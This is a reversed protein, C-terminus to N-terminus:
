KVEINQSMNLLLGVCSMNALLSSGGYSIFPLPIGKTPLLGIVVSINILAQYILMLTIGLALYSGYRDKFSKAIIVGKILIIFYLIWIIISGILGLEESIIAFIFDTHPQPIYFLKQLSNGIGLGKIGGSGVAIKAQELQFLAAEVNKDPPEKGIIQCWWANIREMRYDYLELALVLLVLGVIFISVLIKKNVGLVFLMSIFVMAILFSTGLDPEILILIIVIGIILSIFSIKRLSIPIEKNQLSYALFLIVGVKAIESPQLSFSGVRIWRKIEGANFLVCVLLCISIFILGYNFSRAKLKNYDVLMLLIMVLLSLVTWVLQRVLFFASPKGIKQAVLASSSYVMVIGIILLFFVSFLIMRDWVLKKAM